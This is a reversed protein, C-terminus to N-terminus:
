LDPAHTTSKKSFPEIISRPIKDENVLWGVLGIKLYPWGQSVNFHGLISCLNPQVGAVMKSYLPM